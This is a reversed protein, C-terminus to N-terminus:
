CNKWISHTPLIDRYVHLIAINNLRDQLMTSRKLGVSFLFVGNMQVPYGQFRSLMRVFRVFEPILGRISEYKQLFDVVEKLDNAEENQRKLLQLFMNRDSFLREKDFHYKYFKMIIDVDAPQDM